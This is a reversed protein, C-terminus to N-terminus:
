ECLARVAALLALAATEIRLTTPGLRVPLFGAALASEREHPALGGEPGVLLHIEQDGKRQSLARALPMAESGLDGLLGLAGRPAALLDPLPMPPEISPLFDLGCQKAAAVCQGLWRDRRAPSLDGPGAVSRDFIVPRLSAAGLETAKELLWDLRGGKPVAFAVHVAPGPRPWHKGPRDILVVVHNRRAEEIRGRANAGRGDFLEVAAGAKLRLVNVAHHAERSSLSVRRGARDEAAGQAAGELEAPVPLDPAFFRPPKGLDEV